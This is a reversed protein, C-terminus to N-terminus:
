ADPDAHKRGAQRSREWSMSQYDRYFGVTELLAQGPSGLVPQGNWTNVSVHSEFTAAHALWSGLAQRIQGSDTGEITTLSSGGDGVLLLPRGGALAISTSPIRAFRLPEGGAVRWEGAQGYLNAPDCANLVVVPTDVKAAAAAGSRLQEVVEPLAFQMGPLGRVFYGRRVEGRMELRQLEPYILDWRWSGVEDELSAHTVVGHRLLLQRAQRAAVESAPLPKGM